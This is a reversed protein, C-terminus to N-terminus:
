AEGKLSRLDMSHEAALNHGNWRLFMEIIRKQM